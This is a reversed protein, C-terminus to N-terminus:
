GMLSRLCFGEWARTLSVKEVNEVDYGNTLSLQADPRASLRACRPGPWTADCLDPFRAFPRDGTQCM